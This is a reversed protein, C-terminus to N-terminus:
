SQKDERQNMLFVFPQAIQPDFLTGAGNSIVDLAYAKRDKIPLGDRLMIRDYTEAVAIIRSLLPIQDGELNRPYGSGDWSEHHAYVSEALDLTNDFLNLIRYGTVPHQKMKETEYETFIDGNLIGDDLAIKGIDHLYGARGVGKIEKEPLHLATGLDMCLQSVNVAHRKEMPSRSFLTECISNIIEASVSRRNLTKDKYMANEASAIVEFIPQEESLKTDYGFSASCKIAKVSASSLEAKLKEVTKEADSRAANPLLMIFEDGGIRAIMDNERCANQFADATKKLLEDGTSHGFVDNTLKLGNIDAFIISLPLNKPSDLQGLNEEFCRGNHIGTLVDYCHMYQIKEEKRMRDSIDLFTVVAGIAKDDVIQPHSYYEVNFFTGDARWYVEDDVQISEGRKLAKRSRCDELPYPSGDRYSHHILSHINKGVLEKENM